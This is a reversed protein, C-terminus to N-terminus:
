RLRACLDPFTAQLHGWLNSNSAKDFKRHHVIDRKRSDLKIPLLKCFALLKTNDTPHEVIVYYKYIAGEHEVVTYPALRDDDEWLIPPDSGAAAAPLAAEPGAAAAAVAPLSAEAEDIVILDAAADAASDVAAAAAEMAAPAPTEPEFLKFLGRRLVSFPRSVTRALSGLTSSWGRWQVRDCVRNYGDSRTIIWLQKQLGLSYQGLIIPAQAAGLASYYETM